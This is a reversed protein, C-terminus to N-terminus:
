RKTYKRKNGYNITDRLCIFKNGVNINDLLPLNFLLFFYINLIM